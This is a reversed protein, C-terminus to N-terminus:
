SSRVRHLLLVVITGAVFGAFFWGWHPNTWEFAQFHESAAAFM